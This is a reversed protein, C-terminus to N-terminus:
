EGGLIIRIGGNLVFGDTPAWADVTWRGDPARGPRVIPDYKTQRVNLLNEGNLFLRYKGLVLEGLLGIELYPKSRARYPNEELRQRGTYYAEFGLRGKGEQEWIAVLGGTHQPTRAVSQRGTGLEKPETAQINVYSGTVTLDGWRQRVLFEAGYTRKPGTLNTLAVGNGAPLVDLSLSNEASSGFVSANLETARLRYGIDFSVTDAVEAKLSGLSALRSLGAAEIEDVFPTPAFFGRGASARITWRDPKYLVSVRPSFRTGYESHFDVRASGALTLDESLDHEVQAFVGPTTFRYDFDPYAESKFRDSQVAGGWVWSTGGLDDSISLEGFLADHQDKECGDGFTHKHDQRVAAARVHLIGLAELPFEGIFGADLRRTEQDQRFSVGDPTTRTTLTGGRRDERMGGVTFFAKQGKESEWYLRPRLTARQFGPMDIWGDYDLDNITQRHLGGTLSVSFGKSLPTAAYATVDQGDRQTLNLLMEGQAQEGPKRSVLNIVGGLASAGYLASAAGKIVEVQGLDTPAIQLLGIGGTGSYLPLGDALLQTYRGDLGRVRVNSAGLAPSTVQVRLGGTEAVLTSINGPTMLIKEEIEERNIVEVRIPENQVRRGSRTAEVIVVEVEEEGEAEPPQAAVPSSSPSTEQAMAYGSPFSAVLTSALLLTRKKM